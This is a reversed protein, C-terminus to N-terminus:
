RLACKPVLEEAVYKAIALSATLGPSDIGLLNICNDYVPDQEIVFDSRGKLKARIGAQHLSIDGLTLNPFFNQVSELYHSEPNLNRGYDEKSVGTTTTPGITVTSGIKYSGNIMDFTPTLHVGVTKSIKGAKLLEKFETYPVEAKKGSDNYFGYPAPYINMGNIRINDKTTYFRASEGRIPTIEYPSDPNVMKAIEDSYLGAANILLKTQFTEEIGDLTQITIRFNDEGSKVATVKRGTLFYVGNREALCELMGVYSTADIIGSTPFYLAKSAIVNPEFYRADAGCIVQMPIGNSQATKIVDDLYEEELPNTAVVLKGTMSHPVSHEKCFAYLLTNGLVCTSAKLPEEYYIGAHIVGSNRSSQNEGRIKSNKEILFIDEKISKSLEYAVACGIVGGGIITIPITESM